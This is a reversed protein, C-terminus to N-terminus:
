FPWRSARPFAPHVTSTSASQVSPLALERISTSAFLKSLRAAEIEQAIRQQEEDVAAVM